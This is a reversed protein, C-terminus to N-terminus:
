YLVLTLGILPRNFTRRPPVVVQVVHLESIDIISGFLITANYLIYLAVFLLILIFKLFVNPDGMDCKQM